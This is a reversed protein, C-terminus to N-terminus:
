SHEPKRLVIATTRYKRTFVSNFSDATRHLLTQRSNM